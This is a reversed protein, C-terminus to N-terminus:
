LRVDIFSNERLSKIWANYRATFLKNRLMNGAEESVEAKNRAASMSELKIIHLGSETWFPKSVDGPQMGSIVETFNKNLQSKKLLGLDGGAKASPDESYQKALDSFSEGQEIKKLLEAAREEIRSKDADKEKKLVIQSIKYGETNELAAKNEAMFKRIDEDTVVIKSRVQMNVLKSITIQERLRKKYEEYSFGEVKLSEKFADETMSYKNKINDVAEKLEADSVGIGLHRAEQMQLRVNILMELFSAENERFVKRKEDEQMAKVASSADAEMSKYLESWTIVEQNVVAVVRDLLVAASALGSFLFALVFIMVGASGKKFM